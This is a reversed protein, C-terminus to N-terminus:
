TNTLQQRVGWNSNKTMLLTCCSAWQIVLLSANTNKHRNKKVQQTETM